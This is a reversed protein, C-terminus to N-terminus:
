FPTSKQGSKHSDAPVAGASENDEIQLNTPATPSSGTGVGPAGGSNILVMTGQIV